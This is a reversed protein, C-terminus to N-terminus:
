SRDRGGCSWPLPVHFLSPMPAELFRTGSASSSSITSGQASHPASGPASWADHHRAISSSSSSSYESGSGCRAQAPRRASPGRARRGADAAEPVRPSRPRVVPHPLPYRPHIPPRRLYAVLQPTSPTASWPWWSPAGHERLGAAAGTFAEPAETCWWHFEAGGDGWHRRDWQTITSTVRGADDTTDERRLPLQWCVDPKLELPAQGRDLAARHLACGAGAPSAPGTSSSARGTSWGPSGPGTPAPQAGGRRAPRGAAFQWEDDTLTKAAAKVRAVDDDDTFHAGYSCCGQELEAAPGTLVGQCGQGYICQWRSLLFTVDFVWTREEDPDEFSVWEHADPPAPRYRRAPREPRPAPGPRKRAWRESSRGARHLLEGAAVLGKWFQDMVMRENPAHIRDGPLGVGLFLVPAALM